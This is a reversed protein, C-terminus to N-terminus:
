RLGRCYVGAAIAAVACTVICFASNIGSKCYSRPDGLSLAGTFGCILALAGCAIAAIGSLPYDVPHKWVNEIVLFLAAVGALLTGVVVQSFGLFLIITILTNHHYRERYPLPEPFLIKQWFVHVFFSTFWLFGLDEVFDKRFITFDCHCTKEPKRWFVGESFNLM